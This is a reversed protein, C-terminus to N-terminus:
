RMPDTIKVQRVNRLNKLRRSVAEIDANSGLEVEARFHSILDGKEDTIVNATHTVISGNFRRIVNSIEGVLGIRDASIVEIRKVALM